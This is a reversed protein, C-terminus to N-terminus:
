HILAGILHRPVGLWRSHVATVNLQQVARVRNRHLNNLATELSQCVPVLTMDIQAARTTDSLRKQTLLIQCDLLEVAIHRKREALVAREGPTATQMLRNVYEQQAVLRVMHFGDIMTSSINTAM